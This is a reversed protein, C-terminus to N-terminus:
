GNVAEVWRQLTRAAAGSDLATRCTDLAGRVAAELDAEDSRAALTAAANLLVVDRIAGQEGDVLRRVVEANDEADGGTL